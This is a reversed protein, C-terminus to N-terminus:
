KTLNEPATNRTLFLLKTRVGNELREADVLYCGGLTAVDEYIRRYVADEPHANKSEALLVASKSPSALLFQVALEIDRSARALGGTGGVEVFATEAPQATNLKQTAEEPSYHHDPKM